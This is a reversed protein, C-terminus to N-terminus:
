SFDKIDRFDHIVVNKRLTEIAKRPIEKDIWGKSKGLIKNEKNVGKKFLDVVAQGSGNLDAGTVILHRINKNALCNRVVASLGEDKSYLQGVVAYNKADVKAIINEKKTWLTLICIQSTTNGVHIMDNFILPWKM